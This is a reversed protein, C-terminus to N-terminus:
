ARMTSILHRPDLLLDLANLSGHISLEAADSARGSVGEGNDVAIAVGGGARVLKLMLHDINGNGMVATENLPGLSKVFCVKQEDQHDEHLQHLECTVGSLQERVTGFAGDTFICVNLVESLKILREKVGPVLFDGCCITGKYNTVLYRLHTDPYGPIVIPIGKKKLSEM